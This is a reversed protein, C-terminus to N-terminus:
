GMDVWYLTSRGEVRSKLIGAKAADRIIEKAKSVGVGLGCTVADVSDRYSTELTSFCGQIEDQTFTRKPKTKSTKEIPAVGTVEFAGDNFRITVPDCPPHNRCITALVVHDAETAHECLSLMTSTDRAYIGSGSIRDIVQKDGARGKAAHFVMVLTIGEASFQKMATITEKVAKQEIEDGLLLYAPDILVVQAGHKKALSLVKDFSPPETDESTNLVVLGDLTAADVGLTSIMRRLRKKYAGAKIEGNLLIVRQKVTIVGLFPTGTAVNVALQLAYFSKRAKSQGVIAVRDGADFIGEMIPQEPEDKESLWVSADVAQIADGNKPKLLPALSRELFMRLGEGGETGAERGIMNCVALLTKTTNRREEADVILQAHYEAHATTPCDEILKEIVSVDLGTDAKVVLPECPTGGDVIRLVSGFVLRAEDDTFSNATLGKNRAIRVVREPAQLLSGAFTRESDILDITKPRPKQAQSKRATM